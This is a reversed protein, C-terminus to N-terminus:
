DYKGVKYEGVDYNGTLKNFRRMNKAKEVFLHGDLHDYEHQIIRAFFDEAIFEIPRGNKDHAKVLIKSYRKVKGYWGPVSLCGEEDTNTHTSLKTWTPNVLTLDEHPNLTNHEKIITCLQIPKGVQVSALGVGDKVYMTEVMDKVFKQMERGSMTAPDVLASREHLMATPEFVIKYVM